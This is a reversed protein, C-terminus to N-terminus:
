RKVGQHNKSKAPLFIRAVSLTPLLRASNKVLQNNNFEQMWRPAGGDFRYIRGVDDLRLEAAEPGDCGM